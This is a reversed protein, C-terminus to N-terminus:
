VHEIRYTRHPINSATHEIRYTRHPMNSAAHEIRELNAAYVQHEVGDYYCTIVHLLM